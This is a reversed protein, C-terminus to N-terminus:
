DRYLNRIAVLARQTSVKFQALDADREQLKFPKVAKKKPAAARKPVATDLVTQMACERQISLTQNYHEVAHCELRQPWRQRASGDPGKLADHGVAGGM